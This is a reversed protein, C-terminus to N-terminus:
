ANSVEERKLQDEILKLLDAGLKPLSVKNHPIGEDVTVSFDLVYLNTPETAIQGRECKVLRIVLPDPKKELEVKVVLGQKEAEEKLSQIRLELESLLFEKADHRTGGYKRLNECNDPRSYYDNPIVCQEDIKWADKKYGGLEKPYLGILDLYEQPSECYIFEKPGLDSIKKKM